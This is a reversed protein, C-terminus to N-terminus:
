LKRFHLFFNEKLLKEEGLFKFGAAEVERIVTEKGTRVHDLVWGSSQGEVRVFDIIVLTGDAKLARYLSALMAHPQEFHHYTDCVFALDISNAALRADNQTNVVAHINNLGESRARKHINDTFTPSIDVAYVQGSPGVVRAFLLTFLGTGAGIDAVRMGPKVGSAAVIAMRQDYVERGPSEFREVWQAFDPDLYPRNIAPDAGDRAVVSFVLATLFLATLSLRLYRSIKMTMM